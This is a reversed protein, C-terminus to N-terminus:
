APLAMLNAFIGYLATSSVDSPLFCRRVKKGNVDVVCFVECGRVWVTAKRDGHIEFKTCTEFEQGLFFGRVDTPLKTTHATITAGLYRATIECVERDRIDTRM